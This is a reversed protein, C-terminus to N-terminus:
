LKLVYLSFCITSSQNSMDNSYELSHWIKLRNSSAYVVVNSLKWYVLVVHVICLRSKKSLKLSLIFIFDRKSTKCCESHENELHNTNCTRPPWFLPVPPERPWHVRCDEAKQALLPARQIDHVTTCILLSVNWFAKHYQFSKSCNPARCIDLLPLNENKFCDAIEQNNKFPPIVGKLESTTKALHLEVKVSQRKKPPLSNPRLSCFLPLLQCPNLFSSFSPPPQMNPFRHPHFCCLPPLCSCFQSNTLCFAYYFFTSFSDLFSSFLSHCFSPSLSAFPGFFYSNFVREKILKGTNWMLPKLVGNM